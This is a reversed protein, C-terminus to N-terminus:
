DSRPQPAGITVRNGNHKFRHLPELTSIRLGREELVRGLRDCNLQAAQYISGLERAEAERRQAGIAFSKIAEGLKTLIEYLWTTPSKSQDTHDNAYQNVPKKNKEETTQHDPLVVPDSQREVESNPSLASISQNRIRIDSIAGIDSGLTTGDSEIPESIAM